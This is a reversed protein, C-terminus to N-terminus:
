SATRIRTEDRSLAVGGQYSYWATRASRERDWVWGPSFPDRGDKTTGKGVLASQLDFDPHSHQPNVKNLVWSLTLHWKNDQRRPTTYSVNLKLRQAQPLAPRVPSAQPSPSRLVAAFPLFDCGHVRQGM